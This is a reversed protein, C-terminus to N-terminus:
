NDIGRTLEDLTEPFLNRGAQKDDPFAQKLVSDVLWGKVSPDNSVKSMVEHVPREDLIQVLAEFDQMSCTAYPMETVYEPRLGDGAVRAVVRSSLEDTIRPGFSFWEELTVVLPFVPKAPQFPLQPYRGERYDDITRYVQAVFGALKDLESDLAATSRIDTRAQLRLRKAKSEIFLL